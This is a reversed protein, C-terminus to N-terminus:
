RAPHSSGEQPAGVVASPQAPPEQSRRAPPLQAPGHATATEGQSAAGAAAQPPEHEGRGAAAQSVRHGAQHYAACEPCPAHTSLSYAVAWLVILGGAAAAWLLAKGVTDLAEKALQHADDLSRDRGATENRAELVAANAEHEDSEVLKKVAGLAILVSRLACLLAACALAKAIWHSGGFEQAAFPIATVVVLAAPLVTGVYGQVWTRTSARAM